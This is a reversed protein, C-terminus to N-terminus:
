MKLWNRRFHGQSILMIVNHVLLIAVYLNVIDIQNIRVQVM